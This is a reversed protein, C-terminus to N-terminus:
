SIRMIGSVINGLQHENQFVSFFIDKFVMVRGKWIGSLNKLGQKCIVGLFYNRFDRKIFVTHCFLLFRKKTRALSPSERFCDIHRLIFMFPICNDRRGQLSYLIQFPRSETM